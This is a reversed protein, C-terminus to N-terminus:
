LNSLTNRGTAKPELNAMESQTLGAVSRLTWAQMDIAKVIAHVKGEVARLRHLEEQKERYKKENKVILTNKKWAETSKSPANEDINLYRDAYWIDFDRELDQIELSVVSEMSKWYSFRAPIESLSEKIEDISMDQMRFDGVEAFYFQGKYEFDIRDGPPGLTQEDSSQLTKM